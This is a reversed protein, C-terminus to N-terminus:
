ERCITEGRAGPHYISRGLYMYQQPQKDRKPVTSVTENAPTQSKMAGFVARLRISQQQTTDLERSSFYQMMSSCDTVVVFDVKVSGWPLEECCFSPPFSSAFRLFVLVLFRVLVPQRLSYRKLM